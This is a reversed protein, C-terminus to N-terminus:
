NAMWVFFMFVLAMVAAFVLMFPLVVEIIAITMALTDKWTWGEVQAAHREKEAKEKEAKEKDTRGLKGTFRMCGFGLASIENGYRDKRYKMIMEKEKIAISRNLYITILIM